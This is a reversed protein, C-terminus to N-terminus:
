EVKSFVVRFKTMKNSANRAFYSVRFSAASRSEIEWLENTGDGAVRLQSGNNLETITGQDKIQADGLNCKTAGEDLTFTNNTANFSWINDKKCDALSVAITPITDPAISDASILISTKQWSSKALAATLTPQSEKKCAILTTITLAILIFITKTRM